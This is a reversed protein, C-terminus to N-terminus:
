EFNINGDMMKLNFAFTNVKWQDNIKVLGIDYTGIFSRTNKGSDSTAYQTATGYTFLKATDGDLVIQTNGSQHHVSEITQFGQAWGDVISQATVDGASGGVSTMDFYVQDTFVDSLLAEWDMNDTQIFLNNAVTEVAHRDELLMIRDSLAQNTNQIEKLLAENESSSCSILTTLLALMIISLILKKM